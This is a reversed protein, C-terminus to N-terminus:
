VARNNPNKMFEKKALDLAFFDYLHGFVREPLYNNRKNFFSILRMHGDKTIKGDIDKKELSAKSLMDAALISTAYEAIDIRGNKDLDLVDASANKSNFTKQLDKTMKETGVSLKRGLDEFAAGLLAVTDIESNMGAKGSLYKVTYDLPPMGKRVAQSKELAESLESMKREFKDDSLGSLNTLDPFTVKPMRYSAYERLNAMANRAYRVKSNRVIGDYRGHNGTIYAQRGDDNGQRISYIAM